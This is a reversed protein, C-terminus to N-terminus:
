YSQSKFNIGGIAKYQPSTAGFVSKIYTKVDIAVVVLGHIEKYMVENRAIRANSLATEANIIALNKAKLDNYLATLSTTKLEEENPNYQPVSILHKILKDLNDLRSDYSMQTTSIEVIAKGADAAALKEEETKKPNARRGQLKRLITKVSDDVQQSTDSSKLANGVRTILKDIPKFATVRASVANKYDATITNMTTISGNAATLLNQLAELKLSAKSPNYAAGYSTCNIILKEFNTANRNHGQDTTSAM